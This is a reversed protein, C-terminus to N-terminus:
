REKGKPTSPVTASTRRQVTGTQGNCWGRARCAPGTVPMVGDDYCDCVGEPQAAARRPAVARCAGCTPPKGNRKAIASPCFAGRHMPAGCACTPLAVRRAAHACKLCVCRGGRKRSMPKSCGECRHRVTERMARSACDRCRQSSSRAKDAGCDACVAFTPEKAASRRDKLVCANCQYSDRTGAPKISRARVGCGLCRPHTCADCRSREKGKRKALMVSGCEPCVLRSPREGGSVDFEVLDRRILAKQVEELTTYGVVNGDSDIRAVRRSRAKEDQNRLTPAVAGAAALREARNLKGDDALM